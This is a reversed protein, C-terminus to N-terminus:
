QTLYDCKFMTLFFGFRKDLLCLSLFNGRLISKISITRSDRVKMFGMMKILGRFWFKRFGMIKM